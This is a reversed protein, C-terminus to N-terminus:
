GNAVIEEALGLSVSVLQSVGKEVMTVGLLRDMKSMTISNHTVVLFRTDTKRVMKSLLSCFKLTNSDDLPADVEDLICIPSPNAMFVAFILSLATLTQEGGSLLSITSLKKGPPQCFIELGAELPDSSEVFTLTAEGGGFLDKFLSKFNQNVEEFANKLRERGEKNLNMIGSSLKVLAKSLDDKEANLNSFQSLLESSDEEARLNVAGLSERKRKLLLINEEAGEISPFQQKEDAMKSALMEFSMGLNENIEAKLYELQEKVNGRNAEVTARIERLDSVEREFKKEKEFCVKLDQEALELKKSADIHNKKIESITVNLSLKKEKILDPKARVVQLDSDLSQHRGKIEKERSQAELLRQSWSEYALDVEKTRKEQSVRKLNIQDFITKKERYQLRLHEVKLKMNEYNKRAESLESALDQRILAQDEKEIFSSIDKEKISISEEIVNQKDSLINLESANRGIQLRLNEMKDQLQSTQKEIDKEMKNMQSCRKSADSHQTKANALSVKLHKLKNKAIKSKNRRDLNIESQSTEEDDNKIFGDWRWFNGDKSVLIQGAKLLPQLKPGIENSVLGISKFRPRLVEPCDMLEDLSKVKDPLSLLNNQEINRWGSKDASEIHPYELEHKLITSIAKIYDEEVELQDLIQNDNRKSEIVSNELYSCESELFSYEGELESVNIKLSEAEEFALERESKYRKYKNDCQEFEDSLKALLKKSVELSEENQRITQLNSQRISKLKVLDAKKEKAQEEMRNLNNDFGVLREELRAFKDGSEELCKESKILATEAEELEAWLSEEKKIDLVSNALQQREEGLRLKELKADDALKKERVENQKLEIINEEISKMSELAAKEQEELGNIQLVHNALDGSFHAESSRLPKIETELKIRKRSESSALEVKKALDVSINTLENESKVMKESTSKFRLYLLIMELERIKIGLDKYRKAQRAQRELTKIQSDLQDIVDSVRSLNLETSTLKLEAEHRRQYLGSIGAAEELIRRRDKPKANILETVQGQKVLSNSQAGSSADAFLIQIDRARFEKGNVKFQSGLDRVVKRVIEINQEKNYEEPASFDTNDLSLSVEATSKAPRSVAGAFIVDEMGGSRMSKPRTEGMVWQIADLINSKGCGNPGVIGTLGDLIPLETKDVFSKFGILSLKKFKM